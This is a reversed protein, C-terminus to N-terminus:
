CNHHYVQERESLVEKTGVSRSKSLSRKRKELKRQAREQPEEEADMDDAGAEKDEVDMENAVERELRSLPKGKRKDKFKEHVKETPLGKKELTEELKDLPINRPYARKNQKMKHEIKFLARKSRVDRLAKTLEEDYEDSDEEDMKNDKMQLFIEEERELDKLKKMIEKDYFDAVNKGDM